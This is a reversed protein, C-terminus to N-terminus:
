LHLEGGDNKAGGSGEGAANQFSYNRSCTFNVALYESFQEWFASPSHFCLWRKCEPFLFTPYYHCANQSSYNRSQVSPFLPLMLFSLVASSSNDQQAEESMGDKVASLVSAPFLLPIKDLFSMKYKLDFSYSCSTWFRFSRLPHDM